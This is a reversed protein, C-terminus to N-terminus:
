ACYAGRSPLRHALCRSRRRRAPRLLGAQPRALSAAPALALRLASSRAPWLWAAGTQAPTEAGDSRRPGAVTAPRDGRREAAGAASPAGHGRGRGAGTQSAGSTPRTPQPIRCRRGCAPWTAPGGRGIAVCPPGGRPGGGGGMGGLSPATQGGGGAADHGLDGRMRPPQIYCLGGPSLAPPDAPVDVIPGLLLAPSSIGCHSAIDPAAPLRQTITPPTEADTGTARWIPTPSSPRSGAPLPNCPRLCAQPCSRRPTTSDRCQM